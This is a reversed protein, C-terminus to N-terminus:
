HEPLPHDPWMFGLARNSAQLAEAELSVTYEGSHVKVKSRGPLSGTLRLEVQEGPNVPAPSYYWQLGERDVKPLWEETALVWEVQSKVRAPKCCKGREMREDVRARLYAAKTGKNKLLWSFERSDGRNWKEAEDPSVGAQVIEVNVTGTHMAPTNSSKAEDTFWALSFGGVVLAAALVMSCLSFIFRPKM